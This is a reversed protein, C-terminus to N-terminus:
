RFFNPPIKCGLNEISDILQTIAKNKFARELNKECHQTQWALSSSSQMLNTQLENKNSSEM